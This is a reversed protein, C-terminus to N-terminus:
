KKVYVSDWTISWSKGGDTSQEAMQRVKGPSIEYWTWRSLPQIGSASLLVMKGDRLEGALPPYNGMNGSNDYYDQHWKNDRYDYFNFSTGSEFGRSSTWNEQLICGGVMRNVDNHGVVQGQPNQVEWSGIWFDFQHFEPSNCPKMSEVIQKFRPQEKLSDFEKAAGLIALFASAPHSDALKGLWLYAKQQDGKVAYVGAISLMAMRTPFGPKPSLEIVKGYSALAKDTEGLNEQSKGLGLWASLNSGDASVLSQFAAAAEVNKSAALLANADKLTPSAATQSRSLSTLLLAFMLLLLLRHAM